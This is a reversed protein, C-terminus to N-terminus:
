HEDPPPGALGKTKLETETVTRGDLVATLTYTSKNPAPRYWGPGPDVGTIAKKVDSAQVTICYTFEKKGDENQVFDTLVMTNTVDEPLPTHGDKGTTTASIPEGYKPKKRGILEDSPVKPKKGREAYGREKVYIVGEYLNQPGHEPDVENSVSVKAGPVPRGAGDVVKVDLYYKPLISAEDTEVILQSYTVNVLSLTTPHSLGGVHAIHAKAALVDVNQLVTDYVTNNEVTTDMSLFRLTMKEKASIECGRILLRSCVQRGHFSLSHEKGSEKVWRRFVFGNHPTSPYPIEVLNTLKTNELVVETPGSFYLGGCNNITSNRAIFRGTFASQYASAYEASPTFESPFIWKYPHDSATVTSNELSILAGNKVRIQYEGDSSCQMRLTEGKLIFEAGARICLDTYCDATKAASNYRFLKKDGVAQAIDALGVGFGDVLIGTRYKPKYLRNEEKYSNVYKGYSINKPSIFKDKYIVICDIEGWHKTGGDERIMIGVNRANDMPDPGDPQLPGSDMLNDNFYGNHGHMGTGKWFRVYKDPTRIVKVDKWQDNDFTVVDQTGWAGVVPMSCACAHYANPDTATVSAWNHGQFESAMTIGLRAPKRDTGVLPKFSIVVRGDERKTHPGMTPAVRIKCQWTGHAANHPTRLLAGNFLNGNMKMALCSADPEVQGKRKDSKKWEPLPRGWPDTVTRSCWKGDTFYDFFDPAEAISMASVVWEQHTEWDDATMKLHIEWIGKENPVTWVFTEGGAEKCVKKNVQWEYDEAGTATVSFTIRDGPKVLYMRDKLNDKNQTHGGKSSWDVVEGPLLSGALLWYQM